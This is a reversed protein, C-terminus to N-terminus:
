AEEVSLQLLGGNVPLDLARRLGRRAEDFALKGRELRFPGVRSLGELVVASLGPRKPPVLSASSKKRWPSRSALHHHLVRTGAPLGMLGPRDLIGGDLLPRGEHWLAQFLGPLTCSAQIAPALPGSSIVRTRRSLVDYVSLTAPVRCGSFEKTPLLSELRARFLRGRLLGLGPRPDWFDARRLALLEDRLQAADLGAAWLGGVLAGASAGSVRAPLLGAEELEMVFGTHAFFGFFGASMALAFPEEALWERLTPPAM